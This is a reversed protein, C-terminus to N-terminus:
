NPQIERIKHGGNSRPLAIRYAESLNSGPELKARNVYLRMYKNATMRTFQVNVNLWTLWEGHKCLKHIMM